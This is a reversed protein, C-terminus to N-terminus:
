QKPTDEQEKNLVWELAIARDHHAWRAAQASKGEQEYHLVLDKCRTIESEIEIRSKILNSEMRRIEYGQAILKDTLTFQKKTM